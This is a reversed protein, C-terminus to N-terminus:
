PSITVDAGHLGHVRGTGLDEDRHLVTSVPWQFSPTVEVMTVPPETARCDVLTRRRIPIPAMWKHRGCPSSSPDPEPPRMHIPPPTLGWTSACLFNFNSDVSTM